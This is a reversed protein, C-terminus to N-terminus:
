DVRLKRMQIYKGELIFIRNETNVTHNDESYQIIKAYFAITRKRFFCGFLLFLFVFVVLWGVGWVGPMKMIEPAKSQVTMWVKGYQLFQIWDRREELLIAIFTCYVVSCAIYHYVHLECYQGSAVYLIICTSYVPSLCSSLFVQLVCSISFCM